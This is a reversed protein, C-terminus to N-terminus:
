PWDALDDEVERELDALISLMRPSAKWAIQGKTNLSRMAHGSREYDRLIAAILENRTRNSNDYRQDEYSCDVWFSLTKEMRLKM